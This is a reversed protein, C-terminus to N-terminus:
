IKFERLKGSNVFERLNGPKGFNYAGQKVLRLGLEWGFGLSKMNVGMFTCTPVLYYIRVYFNQLAMQSNKHVKGYILRVTMMTM